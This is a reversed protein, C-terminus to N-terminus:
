YPRRAAVLPPPPPVTLPELVPKPVPDPKPAPALLIERKPRPQPEPKLPPPPPPPPPTWIPMPTPTPTPVVEIVPPLPFYARDREGIDDPGIRLARLRMWTLYEAKGTPFWENRMRGRETRFVAGLPAALDARFRSISTRVPRPPPYRPWRVKEALSPSTRWSASLSAETRRGCIRRSQM